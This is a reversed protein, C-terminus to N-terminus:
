TLARGFFAGIKRRLFTAVGLRAIEQNEEPWIALVNETAAEHESMLQSLATIAQPHHALIPELQRKDIELLRAHTATTLTASRPAGTLLSMEGMVDGPSRRGIQHDHKGEVHKTVNILGTLVVFLSSGVEGERVIVSNAEFEQLRGQQAITALDAEFLGFLPIRALISALDIRHDINRPPAELLAVDRRPYPPSLGIQDLFKLANIVVDRGVSFTDPYDAVWYNMSYVIGSDACSDILARPRPSELVGPTAVMAAELVQIVREAPVDYGMTITKTDRLHRQPVNFNKFQGSSLSSNPVVILRGDITEFHTTRWTVQVVRGVAGGPIEIWDGLRIVHEINLGLGAFLDSITRQVSFGVVAAAVGSTALIGGLSQGFVQSVIILGAIFFIVLGGVDILLRPLKDRMGRRRAVREILASLLSKVLWAATLWIGMRIAIALYHYGDPTLLTAIRGTDGASAWSLAIVLCFCGLPAAIRM